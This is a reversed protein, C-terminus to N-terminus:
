APRHGREDRGCEARDRRDARRGDTGGIERCWTGVVVLGCRDISRGLYALFGLSAMDAWHLDDLLVVIPQTAAADVLVRALADFVVLQDRSGDGTAAHGDRIAAVEPTAFPDSGPM